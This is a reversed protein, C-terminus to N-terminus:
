HSLLLSASGQVNSDAGAGAGAGLLIAIRSRSRSGSLAFYSQEPPEPEGGAIRVPANRFCKLQPMNPSPLIVRLTSVNRATEYRCSGLILIKILFILKVTYM